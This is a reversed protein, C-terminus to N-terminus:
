KLEEFYKEPILRRGMYGDNFGHYYRLKEEDSRWCLLVEENEIIAPFDVLGISFNWDKYSCGLEDLEDMCTEFVGVLKRFEPTDEAGTGLTRRMSQMEQGADLIDAVIKKVLPLTKGAEAPTFFKM